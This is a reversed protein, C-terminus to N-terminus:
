GASGETPIDFRETYGAFAETVTARDLGYDSLARAILATTDNRNALPKFRFQKVAMGYVMKLLSKRVSAHLPKEARASAASKGGHDAVQKNLEVGLADAAAKQTGVVTGGNERLYELLLSDSRTPARSPKANASSKKAVPPWPM